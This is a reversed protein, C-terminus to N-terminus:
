KIVLFSIAINGHCLLIDGEVICVEKTAAIITNLWIRLDRVRSSYDVKFAFVRLKPELRPVKMLEGFIQLM